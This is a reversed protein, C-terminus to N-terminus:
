MTTTLNPRGTANHDCSALSGAICVPIGTIFVKASGTIIVAARHEGDGHQEVPCGVVAVPNGFYFVKVNPGPRIIGGATDVNCVSIDVM